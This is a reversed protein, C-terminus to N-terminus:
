RYELDIVVDGAPVATADNDVLGTVLTFAFGKDLLLPVSPNFSITQGPPVGITKAIPTSGAVPAVSTNHIKVYVFAANKNTFLGGFFLTPDGKVLTADAQGQSVRHYPFVWNFSALDKVYQEFPIKLM